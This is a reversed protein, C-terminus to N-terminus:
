AHEHDWSSSAMFFASQALLLSPCHVGHWSGHWLNVMSEEVGGDIADKCGGGLLAPLYRLHAACVGHGQAIRIHPPNPPLPNADVPRM